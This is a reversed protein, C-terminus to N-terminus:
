GAPTTAPFRLPTSLLVQPKGRDARWGRGDILGVELTWEGRPPAQIPVQVQVMQGPELDVALPLAMDQRLEGSQQGRAPQVDLQMGRAPPADLRMGRAPPADLQAGRAPPADLRMGRAPPTPRWRAAIRIERGSPLDLGAYALPGENQVEVWVLGPAGAALQVPLQGRLVLGASDGAMRPIGGLSTQAPQADGLRRLLEDVHGGCANTTEYITDQGFRFRERVEGREVAAHWRAEDGLPLLAFHVVIWRLETIACLNSLARPDPLRQALTMVLLHSRPPYGSYGNLLPRGHETAGLMARGNALFARSDLPSNLAPLDLVAGPEAPDLTEALWRHMGINVPHRVDHVLPLPWVPASRAVLAVGLAVAVVGGIRQGARGALSGALAVLREVGAAGLLALAMEPLVAFRTPSRIAGFGPVLASVLQWPGPLGMGNGLRFETGCALVFGLLGITLLGLQIPRTIGGRMLLGPLALVVVSWGTARIIQGFVASPGLSLLSAADQTTASLLAGADRARLYPLGVPLWVLLALAIPLLAILVPRRARRAEIYLTPLFAVLLVLLEYAIYMGALLQLLTVAFLAVLRGLGPERAARWSLLLVLPFFHVASVHLRTFSLVNDPGLAFACGAFFGAVANGTWARALLFTTLATLWPVLLALLNYALVANSTALLVPVSVPALGLLHESAALADPAPHFINAQFIGLPDRLLNRGTWGLIWVLLDLDARGWVPANGGLGAPDVLATGLQLPLPWALGLLLAGFALGAMWFECANRRRPRGVVM